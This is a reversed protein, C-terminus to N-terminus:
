PSLFRNTADLFLLPSGAEKSHDEMSLLQQMSVKTELSVWSLTSLLSGMTSYM